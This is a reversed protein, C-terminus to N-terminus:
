RRPSAQGARGGARAPPQGPATVTQGASLAEAGYADTVALYWGHEGVPLGSWAATVTDGSAVDDFSAIKVTTLVEVVVSDTALM